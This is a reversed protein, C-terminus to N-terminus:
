VEFITLKATEPLVKVNDNHAGPLLVVPVGSVKVSGVQEAVIGYSATPSSAPDLSVSKLIVSAIRTIISDDRRGQDDATGFNGDAGAVAGAVISSSRFDGLVKVAGITATESAFTGRPNAADSPAAYGALLEAFAVDGHFTAKGIGGIASLIVPTTKGDQVNGLVDGKVVLSGLKGSTYIGGSGILTSGFNKGAEINEGIVISRINGATIFGSRIISSAGAAASSGGIISGSIKTKGLNTSVFVEGSGAGTGGQIDGNITLSRVGGNVIISGSQQGSGGKLSAEIEPVAGRAAKGFTIKGISNVNVIGSAAGAGGTLDGLLTLKGIGTNYRGDLPLLGGSQDGGGGTIGGLVATGIGATFLIQGSGPASGGKLQGKVILTRIKGFGSGAVAQNFGDGFLRISGVVDGNVVMKGIPGLVLSANPTNLGTTPAPISTGAGLSGVTLKAIGSPVLISGASIRGLDGSISVSGLSIGSAFRFLDGQPVAAEIAGVDTKGNGLREGNPLVQVKSTVTINTGSFAAANDKLDILTLNRGGVSGAPTLTIRGTDLNGFFAVSGKSLKVDVIDGDVDVYQFERPSIIRLDNDLIIGRASVVGNVGNIPKAGSSFDKLDLHLFEAKEFAFDSVTAVTVTTSASGVPISFSSTAPPTFDAAAATGIRTTATFTLPTDTVPATTEVLFNLAGGEVTRVDQVFVGLSVDGNDTITGTASATTLTVGTTSTGLKANSLQVTFTETLEKWQDGFIPVSIQQTGGAATAPITLTGSTKKYDVQPGSSKANGDVTTFDLTVAERTAGALTVTFILNAQGSDGEVISVNGINLTPAADDNVLTVTTNPTALIVGTPASLELTFTENAESYVDGKVTVDFGVSTQGIPITLITDALAVFDALAGNAATSIATGDKTKVHVTVVHLSAQPISVTYHRIIDGNGEPGATEGALSVILDDNTLTGTASADFLTVDLDTTGGPVTFKAETLNVSFTEDLEDAVDGNLAIRIEKESEGAAFVVVSGTAAPFYDNDAVTATGDATNYKVTIAGGATAPTAGNAAVLKVKFVLEKTGSDGEAIIADEIKVQPLLARDAADTIKVVADSEAPLIVGNVASTLRLKFTEDSEPVADSKVGVRLVASLEAGAAFTATSGSATYDTGATAKLANATDDLQTSYSVTGPVTLLGVRKIRFEFFQQTGTTPDEVVSFPGSAGSVDVITYRVEDNRITGTADAAGVTAFESSSLHISFSEDVESIADGNIDVSITKSSEGPLFTLTGNKAVFDGAAATATQDVTAFNVKSTLTTSGNRTVTFVLQSTGTNGEEKTGGSISFTSFDNAQITATGVGSGSFVANQLTSLLKVQFTEELEDTGDNQTPVTITASTQGAPIILTQANAFATFDGGSTAGGAVPLTIWNVTVDKGSAASLTLVFAASSGEAVTPSSITLTPANDDDQITGVAAPAAGLVANTASTLTVNITEDNEDTTDGLIDISINATQQGAAFTVSTTTPLLFDKGAGAVATGATVTFNVTVGHGVPAASLTVPILLQTTGSNGEILSGNGVTVSVDDNLIKGDGLGDALTLATNIAPITANSLSVQFFEDAEDAEDGLIPVSVTFTKQGAPITFAMAALATFDTGATATGAVTAAEFTVDQGSVESLTVTFEAQKTVGAAGETLTANGISLTPATDVADTIIGAGEAKAIAAGAVASLKVKFLESAPEFIRDGLITVSFTKTTEGVAFILTETKAVYDAFVGTSSATGDETALKVSVEDPSAASLTVTFIATSTGSEGEAISVDTISLLSDDNTITGVGVGDLLQLIPVNNAKANSLSVSFTEDGEPTTDGLIPVTFTKTTQGLDFTLDGAAATYDSGAFGSGDQTAYHVTVPYASAGDLTVTFEMNATGSNGEVRRGDSISLAVDDNTIMGTATTDAGALLAVTPNFLMVSLTEALEPTIDGLIPIRIDVTQQGIAFTLTGSAPTTFDGGATATIGSVAFDVTVATTPVASLSVTFVLDNEGINGEAIIRTAPSFAVTLDDDIITGKAVGDAVPEVRANTVNSLQVSFTETDEYVADGFIKVQIVKSTENAAITYTDSLAEYDLGALATDGADTFTAFTFDVASVPESAGIKQVTFSMFKEGTPGEVIQQGMVRLRPLLDDNTITATATATALTGRLADSLTLTFTEDGEFVADNNVTVEITKSVEGPAFVVRQLTLGVYDSGAQATGDATSAFFETVEDSPHDLTVNFIFKQTGGNEALSPATTVLTIVPLADGDETIIGTATGNVIQVNESQSLIVRFNNPTIDHNVDGHVKVIIQKETEGAAFILVTDPLATFDAGLGSSTATGDSTQFHVTVPHPSAASLKVTFVADTDGSNGETVTVTVNEISVTLDDNLLKATALADTIVLNQLGVKAESLNVAFSEDAEDTADLNQTVIVKGTTSGGVITGIGDVVAVYDEPATATGNATNIKFTIDDEAAGVTTVIFELDRTMTADAPNGELQTPLDAVSLTPLADDNRITAIGTSKLLTASVAGSLVVSFAEDQSFASDSNVDVTFTATTEGAPITFTQTKGAFDRVVGPVAVVEPVGPSAPVGAVAITHAMATGNVTTATFTVPEASAADLSITFTFTNTGGGNGEAHDVDSISLKPITDDNQITATVETEAPLTSLTANTASNLRVKVTEDLEFKSDHNVKVTFTQELMGAPITVAVNSQADYDGDATTATGDLTSLFVTVDQASAASLSIRYVLDTKATPTSGEAVLGIIPALLKVTPALDDNLIVGTATNAPSFTAHDVSAIKLIISEDAENGVDGHVMVSLTASKQGAPITVDLGAPITYDAANATSGPQMELHVIIDHDSVTPISVIFQLPADVLNGEAITESLISVTREDNIIKGIGQAKAVVISAGGITAESLNVNFIEDLEDVTDGTVPVTLTVSTQGAFITRQEGSITYDSGSLASVNETAWKFTVDESAAVPTTTGSLFLSVTFTFNKVGSDGEIIFADSVSLTAQADDNTITAMAGTQLPNVTANTASILNLQFTEDGEFVRDGVIDVKVEASTQGAPITTTFVPPLKFDMGATATGGLIQYSVVVDRTSAANLSLTFTAQNLAPSPPTNTDGELVAVVPAISVIVEDNVITGTAQSRAFGLAAAGYKANALNVFFTEDAEDTADGNLTVSVTTTKQGALITGSATTVTVYDVGPTASGLATGWDFTIDQDAANPISVTFEMTTTGAAGESIRKDVVSLTNAEDNAILGTAQGDTFSLATAGLMANSLNVLFTEDAEYLTDGTLTVSVTTTTFGAAITASTTAVATYDTGATASGTATAWDFTINQDAVGSATVTFTLLKTGSDGETIQRDAISLTPLGDDNTITAAGTGMGIAANTADTLIVNFSEDGETIADGKVKVVIMASTQGALITVTNLTMPLFDTGSKATGEQIAYTVVVDHTVAGNPLSVLFSADTTLANGETVNGAGAIDVTVEDNVIRATASGDSIVLPSGGMLASSIQTLFTEDGEDSADGSVPVSLTATRQGAAITVTPPPTVATYDVGATATGDATVWNFTIDQDSPNSLTVTFDFSTSGANGENKSFDGVSLTPRLDDNLITGSATAAGLTAGTPGSLVVSVSEDSEFKDDHNVKVTFTKLLTGAPITVLVGSQADYDGDATTATGNATSVLVTVDEASVENLRITYNLHGKQIEPHAPDGLSNEFISGAAVVSVTPLADADTITGVSEAAGLAANTAGTLTVKFTEEFEHGTDGVVPVAIVASTQGAPIVVSLTTPVRFDTGVTAAHGGALAFGAVTFTATVDYTAATDLTVTFNANTTGTNGEAVTTGAAISVTREDNGITGKAQARTVTLATAGMQANSLNVLFTEDAESVADGSVPVNLTASTQGAPITVTTTGVATFDVGATAVNVGVDVATAWDFTVDQSAPNSLSVTLALQTTGFDGEVLRSDAISLTPAADDNKITATVEGVSISSGLSPSSLRVGFTEDGELKGDANVKVTFSKETEGALFTFTESALDFDADGATATGDLASAVVTVVSAAPADLTVKFVFDTKGGGQGENKPNEPPLLLTLVAPAIRSELPEITPFKM